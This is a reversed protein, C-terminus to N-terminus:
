VRTENDNPTKKKKPNENENELVHKKSLETGLFGRAGNDKPFAFERKKKEKTM